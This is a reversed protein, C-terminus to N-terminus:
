PEGGVQVAQKIAGGIDGHAIPGLLGLSYLVILIVVLIVIAKGVAGFVYGGLLTLYLFLATWLRIGLWPGINIVPSLMLQGQNGSLDWLFLLAVIILSIFFAMEGSSYLMTALGFVIIATLIIIGTLAM